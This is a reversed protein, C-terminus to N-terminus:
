HNDYQIMHTYTYFNTCGEFSMGTVSVGQIRSVIDAERIDRHGIDVVETGDKERDQAQGPKNVYSVVATKIYTGNHLMRQSESTLGMGLKAHTFVYSFERM